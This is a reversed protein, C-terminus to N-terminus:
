KKIQYQVKSKEIDNTLKETAEIHGNETSNLAKRILTLLCERKNYPVWESFLETFYNNKRVSTKSWLGRQLANATPGGYRVECIYNNRNDLFLFIPHERQKGTGKKQVKGTAYNYEEKADVYVIRALNETMKLSNFLLINCIGGKTEDKDEKYILPLVNFLVTGKIKAVVQQIIQSENTDKIGLETLFNYLVNEKDTSLQLPGVGYAKLSIPLYVKKGKRVCNRVAIDEEHEKSRFYEKGVHICEFDYMFQQIFETVGVEAMDGHTKNGIFRMSFINSLTNNLPRKLKKCQLRSIFNTFDEPDTTYELQKKSIVQKKKM